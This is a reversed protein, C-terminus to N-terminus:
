DSVERHAKRHDHPPIYKILESLKEAVEKEIKEWKFSPSTNMARISDNLIAISEIIAKIEM